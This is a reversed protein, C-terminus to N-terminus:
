TALPITQPFFPHTQFHSLIRKTAAGTGELQILHTSTPVFKNPNIYIYTYIYIYIYMQHEATHGPNASDFRGLIAWFIRCTAPAGLWSANTDRPNEPSLLYVFIKQPNGYISTGGNVISPKHHFMRNFGILVYKEISSKPTGGWSQSSLMQFFPPLSMPSTGPQVDSAAITINNTIM